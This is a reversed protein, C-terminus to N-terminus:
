KVVEALSEPSFRSSFGSPQGGYGIRFLLAVIQGDDQNIGINTKIKEYSQNIIQIHKGSFGSTENKVRQWFFLVGTLLHCSLGMKEAELWVRELSRGATLFNNDQDKIILVGVAGCLSYNKANTRAIAKSVGLKNLVNAVAWHSLLKFAKQQPKELEMTKLYLGSKKEREEQETWVIEKFLLGHLNKDELMIRIDQSSAEIIANIKEREEILRFEVSEFKNGQTLLNEKQKENLPINKYPKRNTAREKIVKYLDEKIAPKKEFTIKATIKTQPTLPTLELHAEYGFESSAIIINEILAGHAVWTGRNKFNLIPHDREPLALIEAQDGAIIFKWPQSNSGSPAHIGAELIKRISENM